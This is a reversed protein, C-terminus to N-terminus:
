AILLKAHNVLTELLLIQAYPAFYVNKQTQDKRSFTDKKVHKVTLEMPVHEAIVRALTVNIIKPISGPVVHKLVNEM